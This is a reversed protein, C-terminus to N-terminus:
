SSYNKFISYRFFPGGSELGSVVNGIIIITPVAIALWQLGFLLLEAFPPTDDLNYKFKM